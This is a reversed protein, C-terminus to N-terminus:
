QLMPLHLLIDRPGLSFVSHVLMRFKTRRSSIKRNTTQCCCSTYLPHISENSPIAHYRGVDAPFQKGLSSQRRMAHKPAGAPILLHPSFSLYAIINVFVISHDAHWCTDFFFPWLSTHQLVKKRASGLVRSSNTCFDFGVTFNSFCMNVCWNAHATLRRLSRSFSHPLSWSRAHPLAWLGYGSLDSVSGSCITSCTDKFVQGSLTHEILHGFFNSWLATSFFVVEDVRFVWQRVIHEEESLRELLKEAAQKPPCSAHNSM